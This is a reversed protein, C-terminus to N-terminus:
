ARRSRAKDMQIRQAILYSPDTAFDRIMQVNEASLDVGTVGRYAHM